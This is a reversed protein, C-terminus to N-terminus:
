FRTKYGKYAGIIGGATGLIKSFLFGDAGAFYGLLGGGIVGIVSCYGATVVIYGSDIQGVNKSCDVKTAEGGLSEELSKTDKQMKLKAGLNKNSEDGKLSQLIM